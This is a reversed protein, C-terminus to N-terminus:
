EYRLAEVPDLKSAQCAPYVTALISILISAACVLILDLPQMKFSLYSIYYIDAQLKILRYTDAVWCILVGGAFGIFTGVAGITLGEILFIGMISKATAGMSKLIGIDKHKELVMMVLTSVINFAAVLIILILIIFMALKELKLASFLNKNMEMWDRTYFPFGLKTQIDRAAERARFIDKVKAQLGTVVPGLDFFGRATDLTVYALSTDYEYMGSDFVGTIRLKKMRPATGMPTLRGVPSMVTIDQGHYVGLTRALEKGIIIGEEGDLDKLDSLRGEVMNGSLNTVKIESDPDIGRLVVGMANRPSSLMVQSYIFPAVALVDPIKETESIVKEYDEIGKQDHSLVVVHANTELIKDRMDTQFGTMVALVIILAMVGLAVGAMSIFTVLSIVTQKRRAKLYRLAIFLEYSM